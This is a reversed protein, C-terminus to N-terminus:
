ARSSFLESTFSRMLPYAVQRPGKQKTFQWVYVLTNSVM